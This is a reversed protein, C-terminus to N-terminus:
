KRILHFIIDYGGLWASWKGRFWESMKGESEGSANLSIPETSTRGM